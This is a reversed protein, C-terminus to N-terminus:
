IVTLVRKERKDQYTVIAVTHIPKNDNIIKKLMNLPEIKRELCLEFIHEKPVPDPFILEPFETAADVRERITCGSEFLLQVLESLARATGRNQLITLYQEIKENTNLKKIIFEDKINLLWMLFQKFDSNKYDFRLLYHLNDFKIVIEDMISQFIKLLDIIRIEGKEDMLLMFYPLSEAWYKMKIKENIYIKENQRGKLSAFKETDMGDYVLFAIQEPYFYKGSLKSFEDFTLIKMM